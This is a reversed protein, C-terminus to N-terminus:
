SFSFAILVQTTTRSTTTATTSSTSSAIDILTTWCYSFPTCNRSPFSCPTRSGPSRSIMGTISTSLFTESRVTV